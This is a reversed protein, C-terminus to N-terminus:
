PREERVTIITKKGAERTAQETGTFSRGKATTDGQRSAEKM